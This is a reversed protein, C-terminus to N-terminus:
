NILNKSKLDRLLMGGTVSIAKENSDIWGIKEIPPNLKIEGSYDGTYCAIRVITGKPKGHAQGEYVGFLEATDQILDISLEEKLERALAEVDTEGEERKGGPIMWATKGTEWTLM